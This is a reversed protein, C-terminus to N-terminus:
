EAQDDSVKRLVDNTATIDRMQVLVQTYNFSTALVKEYKSGEAEDTVLLIDALIDKVVDGDIPKDAIDAMDSVWQNFSNANDIALNLTEKLTMGDNDFKPKMM